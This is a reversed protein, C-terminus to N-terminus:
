LNIRIQGPKAESTLIGTEPDYTAILEDSKPRYIPINQGTSYNESEMWELIQRKIERMADARRFSPRLLLFWLVGFVLIGFIHFPLCISLLIVFLISRAIFRRAGEDKFIVRAIGYAVYLLVSAIIVAATIGLVWAGTMDKPPDYPVNSALIV